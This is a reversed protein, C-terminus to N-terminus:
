KMAEECLRFMRDNNRAKEEGEPTGKARHGNAYRKFTDRCKELAEGRQRNQDAIASLKQWVRRAEEEKEMPDTYYLHRLRCTDTSCGLTFFEGHHDNDKCFFADGGCLPCSGLTNTENLM